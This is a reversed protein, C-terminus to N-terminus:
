LKDFRVDHQFRQHWLYLTQVDVNVPFVPLSTLLLGQKDRYKWAVFARPSSTQNPHYYQCSSFNLRGGWRKCQTWTSLVASLSLSSSRIAALHKFLSLFILQSWLILSLLQQWIKLEMVLIHIYFRIEGHHQLHVLVFKKESVILFGTMYGISFYLM